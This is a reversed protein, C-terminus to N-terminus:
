MIGKLMRQITTDLNKVIKALNTLKINHDGREIKGLYGPGLHCAQALEMRTLGKSERLKRIRAGVQKHIRRPPHAKMDVKGLWASCPM